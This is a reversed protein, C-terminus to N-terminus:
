LEYSIQNIQNITNNITTMDSTLVQIMQNNEAVNEEGEIKVIMQQLKHVYERKKEDFIQYLGQLLPEKSKNLNERVGDTLDAYLQDTQIEIKELYDKKLNKLFSTRSNLEANRMAEEEEKIKRMSEDLKSQWIARM